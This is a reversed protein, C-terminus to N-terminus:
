MLNVTQSVGSRGAGGHVCFGFKFAFGLYGSYPWYLSKPARSSAVPKIHTSFLVKNFDVFFHKSKGNFHWNVINQKIVDAYRLVQNNIPCKM